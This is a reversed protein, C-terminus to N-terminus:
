DEAKNIEKMVIRELTDLANNLNDNVMIHNFEHKKELESKVINLRKQIEEESETKRKFLRKKLEDISPPEIFILVAESMKNKVQLAGCVDIELVLSKGEDLMKEVFKKNTGYFNDSFQAWELFDGSEVRNKFDEQTLFFYHVGDVEGRRPKRTTASISVAIEPHNERLMGVLTGKGVGSPGSIVFLIGKKFLSAM